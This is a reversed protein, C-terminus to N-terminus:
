FDEVAIHCSFDAATATAFYMTVNDASANGILIEQGPKAVWRYIGGNANCSLRIMKVTSATPQTTAYTTTATYGAAASLPDAKEPTQNTAAGTGAASVRSVMVEERASATGEGGVSVEHLICKRSSAAAVTFIADTTSVTSTELVSNYYMAM